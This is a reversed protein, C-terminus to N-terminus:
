CSGRGSYRTLIPSRMTAAPLGSVPGLWVEAFFITPASPLSLCCTTNATASLRESSSTCHMEPVAISSPMVKALAQSLAGGAPIVVPLKSTVFSFGSSSLQFAARLASPEHQVCRRSTPSRMIEAFPEKSMPAKALSLDTANSTTRQREREATLAFLISTVISFNLGSSRTPICIRRRTTSGFCISTKSTTGVPRNAAHFLVGPLAFTKLPSRM